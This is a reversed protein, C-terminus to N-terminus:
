DDSDEDEDPKSSRKFLDAFRGMMLLSVKKGGVLDPSPSPSPSPLPSSFFFVGSMIDNLTLKMLNTSSEGSLAAKALERKNGQLALIGLGM